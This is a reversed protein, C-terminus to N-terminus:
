DDRRCRDRHCEGSCCQGDRTCRAGLARCQRAALAFTADDDGDDRRCRDRHCEGSCCQRNRECRAGLARCQRTELAFLAGDEAAEAATDPSPMAASFSALAIAMTAAISLFRM